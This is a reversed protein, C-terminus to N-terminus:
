AYFVLQCYLKYLPPANSDCYFCLIKELSFNNIRIDKFPNKYWSIVSYDFDIKFIKTWFGDSKKELTVVKNSCCKSVEKKVECCTKVDKVCSTEEFIALSFGAVNDQCYHVNVALGTNAFLVLIALLFSTLRNLLM